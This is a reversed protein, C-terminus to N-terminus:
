ATTEELDLHLALISDAFARQSKWASAVSVLLDEDLRLLREASRRDLEPQVACVYDVLSTLSPERM